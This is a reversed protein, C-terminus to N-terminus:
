FLASQEVAPQAPQNLQWEEVIHGLERKFWQAVFLRHCFYHEDLIALRVLYIKHQATM